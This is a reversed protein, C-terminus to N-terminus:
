QRAPELACRRRGAPVTEVRKSGRLVLLLRDLGIGFGIAPVSPGGLSEIMNDYRGGSGLTNQAGLDGETTRVEFVTRTYYDLGRVLRPDSSAVKGPDGLAVDLGAVCRDSHACDEALLVDTRRLLCMNKAIAQETADKLIRIRLPNGNSSSAGCLAESLRKRSM